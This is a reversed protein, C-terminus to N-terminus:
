EPDSLKRPKDTLGVLYDLSLDYFRALEIARRLPMERQGSEYTSYYQYTTKLVKAIDTQTLDRDERIARMRECYNM